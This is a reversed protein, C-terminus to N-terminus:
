KNYIEYVNTGLKFSKNESISVRIVPIEMENGGYFVTEIAM